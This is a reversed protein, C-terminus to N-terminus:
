QYLIIILPYGAVGCGRGRAKKWFPFFTLLLDLAALTKLRNERGTGFRYPLATGSFRPKNFRGGGSAGGGRAGM